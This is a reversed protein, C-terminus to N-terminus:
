SFGAIPGLLLILLSWTGLTLTGSETSPSLLSVRPALNLVGAIMARPANPPNTNKAAMMVVMM